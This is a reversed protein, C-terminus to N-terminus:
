PAHTDVQHPRRATGTMHTKQSALVIQALAFWRTQVDQLNSQQAMSLFAAYLRGYEDSHMM